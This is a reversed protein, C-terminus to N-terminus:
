EVTKVGKIRQFHKKNLTKLPMEYVISTAGIFINRFEILQNRSKLEHYIASAKVAVEGSFPLVVLNKTLLQVDNKKEENTAGMFLEYLTVASIFINNDALSYLTTKQKNKARLYEIFVSTDVVLNGAEM